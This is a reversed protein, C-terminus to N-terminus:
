LGFQLSYIMIISSSCFVLLNTSSDVLVFVCITKLAIFLESESVNKNPVNVAFITAPLNLYIISNASVSVNEM